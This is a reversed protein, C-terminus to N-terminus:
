CLSEAKSLARNNYHLYKWHTFYTPASRKLRDHSTESTKHSEDTNVKFDNKKEIIESKKRYLKTKTLLKLAVFYEVYSLFKLLINNPILKKVKSRSNILM